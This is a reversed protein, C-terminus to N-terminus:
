NRYTVVLLPLLKEPKLHKWLIESWFHYPPKGYKATLNEM